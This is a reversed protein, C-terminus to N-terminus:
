TRQTAAQNGATSRDNPPSFFQDYIARNRM